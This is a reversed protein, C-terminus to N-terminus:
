RRSCLQADASHLLPCIPAATPVVSVPHHWNRMAAYAIPECADLPHDFVIAELFLAPQNPPRDAHPSLQLSLLGKELKLFREFADM